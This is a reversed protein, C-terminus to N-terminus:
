PLPSPTASALTFSPARAARKIPARPSSPSSLHRAGAIKGRRRHHRVSTTVPHSPCAPHLSLEPVTRPPALHWVSSALTNIAFRHLAHRGATIVDIAQDRARRLPHCAPSAQWLSPPQSPALALAASPHPRASLPPPLLAPTRASIPRM